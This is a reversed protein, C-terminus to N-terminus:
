LVPLRYVGLRISEELIPRVRTNFAVTMPDSPGNVLPPSPGTESAGSAPHEYATMAQILALERRDTQIWGGLNVVLSFLVAALMACLFIDNDFLSAPRHQLFEEVIAFWAFILLLASYIAYRPSVAQSIGFDSRIGAVGVATILMFLVCYSVLPNRRMYGRRALYFFFVCLLAGLVFSGAEFPFGAASGIFSLVYAPALPHFASVISRHPGTQSSNVNYHYAYAAICGASVVLWAAIRKYQRGIALIVLGFPILLLGNGDSSVALILFALAGCFAWPGRGRVLLYIATFTFPLVVIHQLGPTAFDLNEWYQLQFLLWSVPVFYALRSAFDKCNPLFMKWLLIALFLVFGNGVASLIRFDIHGWLYLQLCAVAHLFFLKMEGHQSGLFFSVRASIGNIQTWRNLFNLLADYDDYIPINLSKRFLVTYFLIPPIAVFLAPIAIGRAGSSKPSETEKMPESKRAVASM